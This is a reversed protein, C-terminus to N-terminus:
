EIRITLRDNVRENLNYHWPISGVCGGREIIMGRQWGSSATAVIARVIQSLKADKAERGAFVVDDGARRLNGRGTWDRPRRQGGSVIWAHWLHRRRLQQSNTCPLRHVCVERQEGRPSEVYRAADRELISRGG